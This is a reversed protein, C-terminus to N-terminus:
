GLLLLYSEKSNLVDERKTHKKDSPDKSNEIGNYDDILKKIEIYLEKPKYQITKYM